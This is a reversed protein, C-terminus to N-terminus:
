DYSLINGLLAPIIYSTDIGLVDFSKAFSSHKVIHPYSNIDTIYAQGMKDVRFDVRAYGNFDLLPIIKRVIEKLKLAYNPAFKTFDYFDYLDDYVMDYGLFDNHLNKEGSISIGIPPLIINEHVTSIVPVEVEYGSVFEQVILSQKYLNSKQKLINMYENSMNGVSNRDIGISACEYIPKCILMIGPPPSSILFEQNPFSYKWSRPTLINHVELYKNWCYKDNSIVNFVANSGTHALKMIDCLAPILADKGKGIGKQTTEFLIDYKSFQKTAVDKIFDCVDYYVTSYIGFKHVSDLLEELENLDFYETSISNDLYDEYDITHKKTNLIMYLHIKDLHRRTTEVLQMIIQKENM